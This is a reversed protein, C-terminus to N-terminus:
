AVSRLGIAGALTGQAPPCASGDGWAVEPILATADDALCAHALVIDARAEGIKMTAATLHRLADQATHMPLGAEVRKSCITYILKGMGGLTADFNEETPLLESQVARVGESLLRINKRM